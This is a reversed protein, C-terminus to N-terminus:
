SGLALASRSKAILLLILVVNIVGLLLICKMSRGSKQAKSFNHLEINAAKARTATDEINYDIRDLISGQDIVLVALEKFITNLASVSKHIHDIEANRQSASESMADLEELQMANFGIDKECSPPARLASLGLLTTSFSHQNPRSVPTGPM